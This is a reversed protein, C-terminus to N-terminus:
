YNLAALLRFYNSLYLVILLSDKLLYNVNPSDM